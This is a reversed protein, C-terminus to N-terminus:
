LIYMLFGIASKTLSDKGYSELFKTFDFFFKM